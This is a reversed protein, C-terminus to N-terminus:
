TLTTDSQTSLQLVLDNFDEATFDYKESSNNHPPEAHGWEAPRRVFATKFGCQKAADLDFSHAAVMCCEEPKLQLYKACTMYAEHLVKYKGIGECSIVADWTLANKRATDIIARYSLLTFSACIYNQKLTSLATPFDEWCDLSHLTDWAIFRKDTETFQTLKNELILESLIEAHVDDFNKTAPTSQGHNLMAALTRRRFENTLEGWDFRVNYKKGIIEFATKFGTHWDLITGGTDFTLAKITM